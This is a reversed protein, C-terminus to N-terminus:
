GIWISNEFHYLFQFHSNTPRLPSLVNLVNLVNLSKRVNKDWIKPNPVKIDQQSYENHIFNYEFTDLVSKTWIPPRKRVNVSM